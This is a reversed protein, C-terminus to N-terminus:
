QVGGDVTDVSEDVAEEAEKAAEDEAKQALRKRAETFAPRRFAVDKFLPKYVKPLYQSDSGPAIQQIAVELLGVEYGDEELVVRMETGAKPCEIFMSSDDGNALLVHVVCSGDGLEDPANEALAEIAQNVALNMSKIEALTEWEIEEEPPEVYIVDKNNDEDDEEPPPPLDRSQLKVSVVDFGGAIAAGFDMWQYARPVSCLGRNRHVRGGEREEEETIALSLDVAPMIHRIMGNRVHLGLALQMQPSKLDQPQWLEDISSPQVFGDSDPIKEWTASTEDSKQDKKNKNSVDLVWTPWDSVFAAPLKDEPKTGSKLPNTIEIFERQQGMPTTTALSHVGSPIGASALLLLLTTAM